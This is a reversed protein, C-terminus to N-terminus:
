GGGYVPDDAPDEPPEDLWQDSVRVERAIVGVVVDREELQGQVQIDDITFLRGEFEVRDRLFADTGERTLLEEWGLRDRIITKSIAFQLSDQTHLGESRFTNRGETRLAWLVPVDIAPGWRRQEGVDYTEHRPSDPDYRHWRVETGWEGGTEVLGRDISNLESEVSFRRGM